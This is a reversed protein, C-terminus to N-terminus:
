IDEINKYRKLKKKSPKRPTVLNSDQIQAYKFRYNNIRRSLENTFHLIYADQEYQKSSCNWDIPLKHFINKESRMWDAVTWNIHGNEGETSVFHAREPVRVKLRQKVTEIFELSNINNKFYIFGSNPRGSRGDVYYIDKNDVLFSEFPPCDEKIFCDADIIVVDGETKKLLEIILDVKYRKWNREDAEGTILKYDYDNRACYEKQSIICPFYRGTYVFDAVCLLSIM